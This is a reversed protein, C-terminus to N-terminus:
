ELVGDWYDFYDYFDFNLCGEDEFYLTGNESKM